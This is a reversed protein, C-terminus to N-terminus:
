CFGLRCEQGRFRKILSCSLALAVLAGLALLAYPLFLNVGAFLFLLVVAAIICINNM